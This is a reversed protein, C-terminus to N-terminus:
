RTVITFSGRSFEARQKGALPWLLCDYKLALEHLTHLPGWYLCLKPIREAPLALRQGRVSAKLSQKSVGGAIKEGSANVKTVANMGAIGVDGGLQKGGIAFLTGAYDMEAKTMGVAFDAAHPNLEGLPTLRRPLALWNLKEAQQKLIGSAEISDQGIGANEGRDLRHHVRGALREVELVQIM